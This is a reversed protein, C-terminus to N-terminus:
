GRRQARACRVGVRAGRSGSARPRPLPTARRRRPPVHEAELDAVSAMRTEHQSKVPANKKAEEAEKAEDVFRLRTKGLAIVAGHALMVEAVREGNVKTGNGSGLDRLLVGKEGAVLELHRRSVSGDELIVNCGETRGLVLRVGRFTLVKGKDPGATIEFRYPPIVADEGEPLADEDDDLQVAPAIRTEAAKARAAAPRAPADDEEPEDDEGYLERRDRADTSSPLEDDDFSPLPDDDLGPADDEDPPLVPTGEDDSHLPEEDSVPRARVERSMRGPPAEWEMDAPDDVQSASSVEDQEEQPPSPRRAKSPRPGVSSSSKRPPMFTGGIRCAERQRVWPRDNTEEARKAAGGSGFSLENAM